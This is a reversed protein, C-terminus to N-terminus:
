ARVQSDAQEVTARIEERLVQSIQGGIERADGGEANVTIAGQGFTVTIDTRQGGGAGQDAFASPVPALPLTLAGPQIDQLIPNVTASLAEISPLGALVPQLSAALAPLTPLDPLAGLQPQVSAALNEVIPQLEPAQALVPEVLQTVSPLALVGAMLAVKLPQAQEVGKVMTDVIAKGAQTLRSLPGEQADSSPLLAGVPGLVDKIKQYIQDKVSLIGDTLTQILAVGADHLSFSSLWEILGTLANTVGVVGDIIGQGFGRGSETADVNIFAMLAKWAGSIGDVILTFAAAIPAFGASVQPGTGLLADLLKGFAEGVRGAGGSLSEWLGSFFTSIPQWISLMSNVTSQFVSTLPAVAQGARDVAIEWNQAFAIVATVARALGDIIVVVGAIIAAGWDKGVSGASQDIPLVAAFWSERVQTFANSLAQTIPQMAQQLRDFAAMVRTAGNSLSTWLGKFFAGLPEWNAYILTGVAALAGIGPIFRAVRALTPGFNTFLTVLGRIPKLLLAFGGLAISLGKAAVGAAILAPGLLLAQGVMKKTAPSLANFQDILEKFRDLLDSIVPALTEGLSIMAVKAAAFARKWQFELTKLVPKLAEDLTGLASTVKDIIDANEQAKPGTLSFVGLMAESDEFVQAIADDNDGFATRLTRLAPLLGQEKVAKRIDHISLGVAELADKGIKTPKLLKVFIGRLATAGRRADIGQRSMAALAGAVQGFSVGAQQAFPLVAALPASLTTPDLKGERIAATLQDTATASSLVEEGYVGIASTLLDAIVAQDGMGGASAKASQELIELATAGRFGASTIFFLAEALKEPGIGTSIAIREIDKRWADLQSRQVGVLGEIKALESEYKAFALVPAVAAATIGVGIAIASRAFNDLGARVRNLRNEFRRM